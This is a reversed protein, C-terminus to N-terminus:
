GCTPPRAPASRWPSCRTAPQRLHRVDQRIRRGAAHRHGQRAARDHRQPEERHRRAPDAPRLVGARLERAAVGLRRRQRDRDACRAGGLGAHLRQRAGGFLRDAQVVLGAPAAGADRPQVRVRRLLLRRGDGARARHAPGDRGARGRDRAGAALTYVGPKDTSRRSTSWTASRSCTPSSRASGSSTPGPLRAPSATPSSVKGDVDRGPRLGITAENSTWRSCWRSRGNRCTACRSSRTSRRAGTTASSSRHGGARPLGREPRLRHARGDAGQACIGAAEPRADHAGLPRRWLAPGRRLARAAPPASGRHLVRRFLAPQRDLAARRRADRGQGRRAEEATIYGNELM